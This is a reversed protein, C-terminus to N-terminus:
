PKSQAARELVAVTENVNRDISLVPEPVSVRARGQQAAFRVIEAVLKERDSPEQLVAGLEPDTILEAAGNYRSTIVPLGAALAEVCVNASPEYVPVFTFLDAAAYLNEVDSLPGTFIINPNTSTSRGKGVVVLKLHVGKAALKRQAEPFADIIFRVGKREWGSGVFLCVFDKASFSYKRRTEERQGRRFRGVDVGNRVLFIRQPPFSFFSQIENRVMDSNVIVFRTNDPNFTEKELKLMTRHFGGTWFTRWWPLYKRRQALWVRHVGDGARYLDQRLTRELSFVCDYKQVGLHQEVADAFAWPRRSRPASVRLPHIQVHPTSETWSETLLHIKHGASSLGAILRQLYLEAGGVPSFARRVLALKMRRALYQQLIPWKAFVLM